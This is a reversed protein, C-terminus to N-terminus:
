KAYLIQKLDALDQRATAAMDTFQAHRVRLVDLEDQAEQLQRPLRDLDRAAYRGEALHGDAAKLHHSVQGHLQREVQEIRATQRALGERTPVFASRAGFVTNDTTLRDRTAATIRGDRFAKDTQASVSRKADGLFRQTRRLDLEARQLSRYAQSAKIRTHLAEARIAPQSDALVRGQATIRQQQAELTKAVRAKAPEGRVLDALRTFIRGVAHMATRIWQQVRQAFPRLRALLFARGQPTALAAAGALGALGTLVGGAWKITTVAVQAVGAAVSVHQAHAAARPLVGDKGQVHQALADSAAGANAGGLRYARAGDASIAGQSTAVSELVAAHREMEGTHAPQPVGLAGFGVAELGATM